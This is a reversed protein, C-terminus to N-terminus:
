FYFEKIEESLAKFDQSGNSKSDFTFITEENITAQNISECKRIITDLLNHKYPKLHEDVFDNTQRNRSDKMNRLIRYHFKESEKVESISDFLDAIGDLSYKSYITPIVLLDAACIANITLVGLTPPCDIIIYDFSDSIAKLHNYIIRERHITSIIRESTAALFINSPIINLNKVDEGNVVAKFICEQIDQKKNIFLENVSKESKLTEKQSELDEIKYTEHYIISSHAQPDLDVLLVRKELLSLGYSLNVSVTSKGVGGKQNIIGIKIM